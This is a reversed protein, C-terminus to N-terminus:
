AERIPIVDNAWARDIQCLAYFASTRVDAHSDALAEQLPEVAEIATLRALTKAAEARTYDDGSELAEIILPIAVPGVPVIRGCAVAWNILWEQEGARPVQWMTADIGSTGTHLARDAASQILRQNDAQAVEKLLDIAWEEDLLLLGQVAARRVSMSDDVIAETLIQRSETTGNLALGEAAAKSMLEDPDILARLLPQEAAPNDMWALAHIAAVRVLEDNDGLMRENLAIAERPAIRAMAALAVQRMLPEPQSLLQSLLASVGQEETAALAATARQRWAVPIDQDIVIRGLGILIQRRWQQRDLSEPLWEALLFLDSESITTGEQQVEKLLNSAGVRAVFFKFFGLWFHDSVYETASEVAGSQAIYSAALYDRWMPCLFSVLDGQYCIFLESDLLTGYLQKIAKPATSVNYSQLIPEALAIVESKHLFLKKNSLMTYAIEQWLERVATALWEEPSAQRIIRLIRLLEKELLEVRRIQPNESGQQEGAGALLIVRTSSEFISHSPHWFLEVPIYNQYDTAATWLQGLTEAQGKRWALLEVVVFDLKLLPGFGRTPGAVISQTDPYADLLKALWSTVAPRDMLPLEDWGDLLLLLQGQEAKMQILSELKRRSINDNRGMLANHIPQLPNEEQDKEKSALGGILGLEIVHVFVPVKSDLFSFGDETSSRACLGACYALLTSKGAGPDGSLIVRKGNMLLQRFTVSPPPSLGVEAALGPWLYHMQNAEMQFAYSEEIKAYPISIRPSVFIDELSAEGSGLHHRQVSTAVANKYRTELGTQLAEGKSNLWRGLHEWTSLLKPWVWRVVVVLLIGAIIGILISVADLDLNKVPSQVAASIDM